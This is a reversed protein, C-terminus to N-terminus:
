CFHLLAFLTCAHHLLHLLLMVTACSDVEYSLTCSFFTSQSHPSTLKHSFARSINIHTHMHPGVTNTHSFLVTIYSHTNTHKFLSHGRVFVLVCFSFSQVTLFFHLVTMSKESQIVTGTLFNHCMLTPSRTVCWACIFSRACLFFQTRMFFVARRHSLFHTWLRGAASFSARLGVLPGAACRRRVAAWRPRVGLVM